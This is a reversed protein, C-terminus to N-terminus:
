LSPAVVIAGSTLFAFFSNKLSTTLPFNTSNASFVPLFGSSINSSYALYPLRSLRTELAFLSTALFPLFRKLLALNDSGKFLVKPGALNLLDTGLFGAGAATALLGSEAHDYGRERLTKYVDRAGFIAGAVPIAKAGVSIGKAAIKGAGSALDKVASFTSKLPESSKARSLLNRGKKAVEKNARSVLNDLNGYKAYLELIEDPNRGTNEAFEVLKGKVVDRLFLKKANRVEPAITTAGEKYPLKRSYEDLERLSIGQEGLKEFEKELIKRFRKEDKDPYNSFYKDLFEEGKDAVESGLAKRYGENNSVAKDFQNFVEGIKESTKGLAKVAEDSRGKRTLFPSDLGEKKATKVITEEADILKNKRQLRDIEKESYFEDGGVNSYTLKDDIFEAAKGLGTRAIRSAAPAKSPTLVDSPSLVDEGKLLNGVDAYADEQVEPSIDEQEPATFLEKEEESPPAFVDNAM